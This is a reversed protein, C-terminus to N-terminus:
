LINQVQERIKEIESKLDVVIHSVQTLDTKSGITNVERGMEQLLFNMKKGIQNNTENLFSVFLESHAKFRTIEESIDRKESLVAIEQMMRQEDIKIDELINGIRKKYKEVQASWSSDTINEIDDILSASNNIRNVLDEGLKQGEIKRLEQTKQLALILSKEICNEIQEKNFNTEKKVIEQNNLFYEIKPPKIGDAEDSIEKSIDLFQKLRQKDLILDDISHVDMKLDMSVSVRGRELYEKVLSNIKSEFEYLSRHLRLNIDLFRSNLSKVEVSISVENKTFEANGFGTMSLPM